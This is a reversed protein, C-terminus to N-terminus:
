KAATIIGPNVVSDVEEGQCGEEGFFKVQACPVGQAESSSDSNSSGGNSSGTHASGGYGSNRHGSYGGYSLGGYSSGGYSLGGYGSGMHGSFEGKSSGGYGSGIHSLYGGKSSGGNSAGWYSSASHGSYAGNSSGGGGTWWVKVTGQRAAEKPVSVCRQKSFSWQLGGVEVETAVQMTPAESTSGTSSSGTSTSGTSTSKPVTGHAANLMSRRTMRKVTDDGHVAKMMQASILALALLLIGAPSARMPGM